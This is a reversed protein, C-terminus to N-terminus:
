TAAPASCNLYENAIQIQKNVFHFTKNIKHGKSQISQELGLCIHLIRLVIYVFELWFRRM